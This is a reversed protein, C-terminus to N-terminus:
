VSGRSSSPNLGSVAIHRWDEAGVQETLDRALGRSGSILFQAPAGVLATNLADVWEGTSNARVLKHELSYRHRDSDDAVCAIVGSTVIKTIYELKLM